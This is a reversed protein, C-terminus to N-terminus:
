SGVEKRSPVGKESEVSSIEDVVPLSFGKGLDSYPHESRLSENGQELVEVSPRTRIGLLEISGVRGAVAFRTQHLISSSAPRSM